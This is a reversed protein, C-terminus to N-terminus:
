YETGPFVTGPYTSATTNVTQSAISSNSKNAITAGDRMLNVHVYSSGIAGNRETRGNAHIASEPYAYPVTDSHSDSFAQVSSMNISGTMLEHYYTSQAGTESDSEMEEFVTINSDLYPVKDWESTE